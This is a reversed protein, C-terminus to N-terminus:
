TQPIVPNRAWPLTNKPRLVESETGFIATYARGPERLAYAGNAEDIDRHQAKMGLKRKFSEVIAESGVAIAESWRKDRTRRTIGAM